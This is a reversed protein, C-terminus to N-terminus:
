KSGPKQSLLIDDEQYYDDVL